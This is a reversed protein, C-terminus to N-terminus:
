LIALSDLFEGKLGGKDGVFSGKFGFLDQCILPFLAEEMSESYAIEKLKTKGYDSLEKKTHTKFFDSPEKVATERHNVNKILPEEKKTIKDPKIIELNTEELAMNEVNEFGPFLDLEETKLEQEIESESNSVQEIKEKKITSKDIVVPEKINETKNKIKKETLPEIKEEKITPTTKAVADLLSDFDDIEVKKFKKAM